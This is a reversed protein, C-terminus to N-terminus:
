TCSTSFIVQVFNEQMQKHARLIKGNIDEINDQRKMLKHCEETKATLQECLITVTDEEHCNEDSSTMPATSQEKVRKAVQNSKWKLEQKKQDYPHESPTVEGAQTRTGQVEIPQPLSVFLVFVILNSISDNGM